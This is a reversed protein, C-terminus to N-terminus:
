FSIEPHKEKIAKELDAFFKKAMQSANAEATKKSADPHYKMYIEYQLPLKGGKECKELIEKDLILRLKQYYKNKEICDVTYIARYFSKTKDQKSKIFKEFEDIIIEFIGDDMIEKEYTSYHSECTDFINLEKGGKDIIIPIVKIDTNEISSLYDRITKEKKEPMMLCIFNYKEDQTPERGLDSKLTKIHGKIKRLTRNEKLSDEPLQDRYYQNKAMVLAKYLYPFFDKKSMKDKSTFRKVVEFIVVRFEDQFIELGIENTRKETNKGKEKILQKTEKKFLFYRCWKTLLEWFQFLCNDRDSSPDYYKSYADFIKVKLEEDKYKQEEV